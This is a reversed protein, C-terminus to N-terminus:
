LKVFRITRFSSRDYCYIRLFYTGAALPLINFSNNMLQGEKVKQGALNYVHADQFTYTSRLIVTTNVPNPSLIITNLIRECDSCDSVTISKEAQAYCTTENSYFYTLKHKGLGASAPSFINNTVGHGSFTGGPPTATLLFASDNICTTEKLLWIIVPGKNISVTKIASAVCNDRSVELRITGSNNNVSSWIVDAYPLNDPGSISGSVVSWQYRVDPSVPAFYESPHNANDCVYDPGTINTTISIVGVKKIVSGFVSSGTSLTFTVNFEGPQAYTHVVTNGTQTPTGDGFNWTATYNNFCLGSFRYTSCSLTEISFDPHNPEPRRADIFAPMSVGSAININLLRVNLFRSVTTQGWKDPDSIRDLFNDQTTIYIQNDPGPQFPAAFYFGPASIINYQLDSLRYQFLWYPQGNTPSTSRMLYFFQGNPSFATGTQINNYGPVDPVRRENKLEGTRNDFDYIAAASSSPYVGHPSCLILKDGKRNSKLQNGSGNYGPHIIGSSIVPAQTSDIGASTVLFSYFKTDELGYGKGIIWYDTGNCHPVVTLFESFKNPVSSHRFEHYPQVTNTNLDVLVFRIGSTTYLNANAGVIFYKGSQGPYPVYCVGTSANIDSQGFIPITSIKQHNKNWVSVANSYFLLNGASDSLSVTAQIFPTQGAYSSQAQITNNTLATTTQVPAGSSFDLSCFNGFYWNTMYSLSSDLTCTIVTFLLSDKRTSTGNSVTLTAKYNGPTNYIVTVTNTAATSPTGGPFQWQYSTATNGNAPNSFIVPKGACFLSNNTHIDANLYPPICGNIGLVGTADLNTVQWLNYRQVNLTAWMRQAQNLTFTNMCDDDAYSMYDNIMDLTTTGTNYNTNCTNYSSNDCFVNQTTCPEIDCIFDGNLDCADTAAGAANTGSCGGQFIHYLNLYHGAEHALVKGQTLGFGLPYNGGATNDGFVDARMVIGDLPYSSMIPRPAYGMVNGGDINKVLWINLYRDFPFYAPTPHTISLLQNASAVTINHNYAGSTNPYRKVGYEIGGPGNYWGATGPTTLRALCFRIRTDQAYFPHSQGNYTTYNKGFAANLAELQSRIQAYSINAGTGYAEGAPYIIHVIVPITYISDSTIRGNFLPTTRNQLAHSIYEKLQLNFNQQLKNYGPIRQQQLAFFKDDACDWGVKSQSYGSFFKVTILTWVLLRKLLSTYMSKQAIM